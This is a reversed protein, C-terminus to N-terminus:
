VALGRCRYARRTKRWRWRCREEFARFTACAPIFRWLRPRRFMNVAASGTARNMGYGLPMKLGDPLRMYM